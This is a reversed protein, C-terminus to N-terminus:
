TNKRIVKIRYNGYYSFFNFYEVCIISEALKTSCRPYSNMKHNIWEHGFNYFINNSFAYPVREWCIIQLNIEKMNVNRIQYRTTDIKQNMIKLGLMPLNFFNVTSFPM